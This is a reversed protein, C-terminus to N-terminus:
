NSWRLYADVIRIQSPRASSDCAPTAQFGPPGDFTGTVLGREDPLQIEIHLPGPDGDCWNSWSTILAASKGPSLWVPQTPRFPDGSVVQLPSGRSDLLTLVPDVSLTCTTKGTNTVVITGEATAAEGQRGGHIGLMNPACPDSLLLTGSSGAVMPHIALGGCLTVENSHELQVRTSSTFGPLVVRLGTVSSCRQGTRNTDSGELLASASQGPSLNITPLTSTGELGGRYGLLSRTVRHASVTVTPYGRVTCPPSHRDTFILVVGVHGLGVAASRATASLSPPSCRSLRATAAEPASPTYPLVSHWLLGADSTQWITERVGDNGLVVGVSPNFFTVSSTYDAGDGITPAALAWNRGGDRTVLLPSRPGALFVTSESIADIEGLYGDALPSTACDNLSESASAASAPPCPSMVTWTIGQNTSELVSKLSSGASPQGACVAFLIGDPTASLAVIFAPFGCPVLRSSWTQGSDSTFWLPAANAGAGLANFPLNASLYAATQSVRLLWTQGSAAGLGNDLSLVVPAAVPRWVFGGDESELLQLPCHEQPDTSLPCGAEVMWISSGLAEVSLVQGPQPLQIWTAGYDHTIVLGPGYAFGDGHDDFALAGVQPSGTCPWNTVPILEGFVGGGDSTSAVLAGCTTQSQSIFLGYGSIANFFALKTLTVTSHEAPPPATTTGNEPPRQTTPVPNPGHVTTPTTPSTSTTLSAPTRSLNPTSQNTSAVATTSLLSSAALVGALVVVCRGRHTDGVRHLIDQARALTRALSTM